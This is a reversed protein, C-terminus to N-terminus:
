GVPSTVSLSRSSLFLQREFRLRGKVAWPPLGEGKGGGGGESRWSVDAVQVDLDGPFGKAAEGNADDHRFDVDEDGRRVDDLPVGGLLAEVVVGGLLGVDSSDLEELAARLTGRGKV